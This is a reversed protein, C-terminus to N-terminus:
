GAVRGGHASAEPLYGVNNIGSRHSGASGPAKFEHEPSFELAALRPNRPNLPNLGILGRLGRNFVPRSSLLDSISDLMRWKRSQFDSIRDLMRWKRSQFGSIRDLM